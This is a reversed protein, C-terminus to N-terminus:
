EKSINGRIKPMPVVVFAIYVIAVIEIVLAILSIVQQAYVPIGLFSNGNKQIHEVLPSILFTTFFGAGGGIAQSFALSDARKAFPVYDYCINIQASGIGGMGIATCTLYFPFLLKGNSPVTFVMAFHGIATITFCWCLMKAFSNRDAYSGWFKSVLIRAILSIITIVSIFKLSFGLEKIQYSGYFSFTSYYSVYYFLTVTSVKLVTKNKFLYFINTAKSKQSSPLKSNDKGETLAMTITHLICLSFITIAGLLLSTKIEGRDRYYDILAGMVFNFVVGSALSIIEKNATFVGRREEPVMSMFWDIKKPHAINYIFFAMFICAVFLATKFSSKGGIPIIYLMVFLLQNAISLLMVFRKVNAKHFFISLVQFLCGLSVFASIIGTLGDSMGLESTLTALFAGTILLSILYELDAEIIYMLRSIAHPEEKFKM